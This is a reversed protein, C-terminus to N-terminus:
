PDVLLSAWSEAQWTQGMTLHLHSTYVFWLQQKLSAFEDRYTYHIPVQTIRTTVRVEPYSQAKSFHMTDFPYADDPILDNEKPPLRPLYFGWPQVYKSLILMLYDWKM